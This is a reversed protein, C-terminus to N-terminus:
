KDERFEVYARDRVQRAWDEMAEQRKRETLVQRATAREKDKSSDETKREVVQVIHLGFPSKVPDSIQGPQLQGIAAALEDPVDGPEVWGMDGGKSAYSDQSNQRALDEFTAQKSEIRAKFDLLKKRADAETQTPTIKLLIHRAHAQQVAATAQEQQEAPPKRVNNVKLIYFGLNTRIVPTVQGPKLKV